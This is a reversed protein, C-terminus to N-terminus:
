QRGGQPLAQDLLLQLIVYLAPEVDEPELYSLPIGFVFLQGHQYGVHKSSYFDYQEQTPPQVPHDVPKCGFAHYSSAALDPDFWTVPGLGQRLMVMPNFANDIMLDMDYQDYQAESRVFFANAAWSQSLSGFDTSNSIGFREPLFGHASTRLEELANCLNAGASIVVAGEADLYIELPDVNQPLNINSVPNDSHWILAKYDQMLVPSVTLPSGTQTQADTHGLPGWSTPLISAYFGDVYDEPSVSGNHRTDDVILLGSRNERPVFAALTITVSAPDSSAGQLDVACAEFVHEGDELGSLVCRRSDAHINHVRLWTKGHHTIQQTQIFQALAPFPAGDLRLDFHAVQSHYNQDTSADLCINYEEDFPDASPFFGEMGPWPPVTTGYQGLYGWQLHLKLDPSNIAEWGEDTQWLNRNKREGAPPILDHYYLEEGPNVSYHHQGLAALTKAYILAKPKFDGRVQFYVSQPTAEEIGQRSVVYCEFQTYEHYANEVLAPDTNSNLRVRRLDAMELSSHWDGESVVELDEDLLNLRFKFHDAYLGDVYIDGIVERLAFEIGNGTLAGPEIATNILSGLLRGSKFGSSYTDIKGDTSKVRLEAKTILDAIKGGNSAFSFSLSSQTTWISRHPGAASLHFDPDTGPVRFWLWGEPAAFCGPPLEGSLTEIRWAFVEDDTLEAGASICQRYIYEDEALPLKDESFVLRGATAQPATPGSQGCAAILALLVLGWIPKLGPRM